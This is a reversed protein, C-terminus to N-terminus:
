GKSGLFDEWEEGEVGGLLNGVCYMERAGEKEVLSSTGKM